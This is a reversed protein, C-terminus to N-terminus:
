VRVSEEWQVMGCPEAASRYRSHEFYVPTASALYAAVGLLPDLAKLFNNLIIDLRLFYNM